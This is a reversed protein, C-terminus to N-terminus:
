NARRTRSWRINRSVARDYAELAADTALKIMQRYAADNVQTFSSRIARTLEEETVASRRSVTQGTLHCFLNLRYVDAAVQWAWDELDLQEVM